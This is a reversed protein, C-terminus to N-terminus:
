AIRITNSLFSVVNEVPFVIRGSSGGPGLKKYEPISVGKVIYSNLSSLSIQLVECLQEKTLVSGYSEVLRQYRREDFYKKNIDDNKTSKHRYNVNNM